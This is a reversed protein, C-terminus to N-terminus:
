TIITLYYIFDIVIVAILAIIFLATTGKFSPNLSSIIGVIGCGIMVLSHIYEIGQDTLWAEGACFSIFYSLGYFLLGISGGLIIGHNM